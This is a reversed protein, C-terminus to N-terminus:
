KHDFINIYMKVLLYIGNAEVSDISPVGPISEMEEDFGKNVNCFHKEMKQFYSNHFNHCESYTQITRRKLNNYIYWFITTKRIVSVAACLPFRLGSLSAFVDSYFSFCLRLADM